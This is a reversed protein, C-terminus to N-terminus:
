MQPPLLISAVGLADDSHGPWWSRSSKEGSHAVMRALESM